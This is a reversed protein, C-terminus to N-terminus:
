FIVQKQLFVNELMVGHRLGPAIKEEERKIEELRAV